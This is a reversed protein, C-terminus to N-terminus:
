KDATLRNARSFDTHGIRLGYNRLTQTEDRLLTTARPCFRGSERAGLSRFNEARAVNNRRIRSVKTNHYFRPTEFSSPIGTIQTTTFLAGVTFDLQQWADDLTILPFAHFQNSIKRGRRRFGVTERCTRFYIIAFDSSLKERPGLDIACRTARIRTSSVFNGDRKWKGRELRM